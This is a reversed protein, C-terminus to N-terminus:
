DKGREFEKEELADGDDEGEVGEDKVATVAADRAEPGVAAALASSSGDDCPGAVGEHAALAAESAEEAPAPLAAATEALPASQQPPQPAAAPAAAQQAAGQVALTALAPM